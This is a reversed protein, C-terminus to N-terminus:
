CRLECSPGFPRQKILSTGCSKVIDGQGTAEQRTVVCSIEYNTTGTGGDNTLPADVGGDPRFVGSQLGLGTNTSTTVYSILTPGPSGSQSQCGVSVISTLLLPIRPILRKM